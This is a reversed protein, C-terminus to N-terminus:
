FDQNRTEVASWLPTRGYWDSAQIDAGHDILFRAVDVHNDEIAEILPTIGNADAQNVDAKAAVLSQVIDLRGDRAAYQLPSLGGSIPNRLGRDPLGGRVIGIGHGFGPVSNPLLWAPTQGTRTRANVQAGRNVLLQVVDPHDERTAVMLATQEFTPDKANLTAGRDLLLQVADLTGIGAATML